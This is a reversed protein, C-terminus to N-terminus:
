KKQAFYKQLVKKIVGSRDDLEQYDDQSVWTYSEHEDSLSIEGTVNTVQYMVLYIYACELNREKRLTEPFKFYETAFPEGVAISLGTEEKVERQLSLNFDLEGEQVKGGPLDAGYPKRFLVLVRGDKEILAKQGVFFIQDRPM